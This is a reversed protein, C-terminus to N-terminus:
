TFPQDPAVQGGMMWTTKAYSEDLARQSDAV